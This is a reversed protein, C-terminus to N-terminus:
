ALSLWGEGTKAVAQLVAVLTTKTKKHFVKAKKKAIVYSTLDTNKKRVASSRQLTQSHRRGRNKCRPHILVLQM